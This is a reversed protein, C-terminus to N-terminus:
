AGELLAMYRAVGANIDYGAVIDQRAQQRLSAYDGPRTLAAHVLTALAPADFFDFALGNEGHRLVEMVPPTTSGLVLCGCSMAELMSWSLVFPYTLYVHAASVQLLSRYDRYPIQGTFVVRSLDLRPGVEALLKERWNAADKPARGYSVSDGGVIVAVAEPCRQQIEPLALMLRHFGRYPELHRAVYTLVPDGPKLARGDPLAYRALPDPAMLTTDVGEHAVQIKHQYTAPHVSRQWNTPSVAADCLELNTLHLMNRCRLNARQDFDAETGPEFGVDVGTAHYYFEFLSVLRVDPFVDKVYLAEGWGPHALVVDPVFGKDRLQILIHAVAEGHAVGSSITAMHRHGTIKLARSDYRVLTIGPLGPAQANGVGVVRHGGQVLHRVIHRFQGPFNRHLVIVNM